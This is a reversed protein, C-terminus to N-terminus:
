LSAKQKSFILLCAKRKSKFVLRDNRLKRGPVNELWQKALLLELCVFSVPLQLNPFNSCAEECSEGAGTLWGGGGGGGGGFPCKILAFRCSMLRAWWSDGGELSLLSSLFRCHQWWSGLICPNWCSCCRQSCLVNNIETHSHGYPLIYTIEWSNHNTLKTCPLTQSIVTKFSFSVFSANLGCFHFTSPLNLIYLNLLSPLVASDTDRRPRRLAPLSFIPQLQQLRSKPTSRLFFKRNIVGSTFSFRM